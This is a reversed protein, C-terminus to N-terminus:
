LMAVTRYGIWAAEGVQQVLRRNLFTCGVAWCVFRRSEEGSEEVGDIWHHICDCRGYILQYAVKLFIKGVVRDSSRGSNRRRSSSSGHHIEGSTSNRFNRGGHAVHAVLAAANKDEYIGSNEGSTESQGPNSDIFGM